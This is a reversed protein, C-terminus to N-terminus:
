KPDDPRATDITPTVDDGPSRSPDRTIYTHCAKPAKSKSPRKVNPCREVACPVYRSDPFDSALTALRDCATNQDGDKQWLEAERWLADDRLTSTKFDAYLRHLTERAKARDNLRDEYLKAIRLLAPIYRPREYSGITASSERFSLMRELHGIAERPRGLKEEIESARFLADDFYAGKPYPWRDAVTVLADRAQELKTRDTGAFGLEALRKAREYAVDEELATRAVRPTLAELHAIAKAPGAEDDIRLVRLLAVRGVGTEPFRLAVAELEAYGAAPDSRSALDAAKFAAQASYANPPNASAIARLENAGRAVDGSRARALAAEYRAYVADRPVKASRAAEDFRNAAADFRGAHHASRADAMAKEYAAGRNPACGVSSSALLFIGAKALRRVNM